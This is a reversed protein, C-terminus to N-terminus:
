KSQEWKRCVNLSRLCYATVLAPHGEFWRDKDNTWSGDDKQLDGLKEVLEEAWAHKTGSADTLTGEGYADLAKAFTHYYYYLGQAGMEPNEDLSYHKQVWAYAAQVRPDDKKVNAYIFSKLGAYTMSGYSRLGKKPDGGPGENPKSAKPTYTFGGDDSRTIGEKELEKTLDNSESRNQCRNLFAVARKWVESDPPVGAAKLAELSMAANSLDPSPNHKQEDDSEDEYGWGGYFWNEPKGGCYTESFQTDCLFERAKQIADKYKAPDAEALATLSVATRYNMLCPLKEPHYFGGDKQQNAIVYAFGKDLQAALKERTEAPGSMVAALSLATFAVDPAGTPDNWSGDANQSKMLFALGKAYVEDLKKTNGEADAVSARDSVERFTVAALIAAIGIVLLKKAM